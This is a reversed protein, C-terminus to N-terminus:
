KLLIMKKTQIYDGAIIRYIYVGSALATANFELTYNGPKMVENKLEKVKEGLINFVSLNVQTEKPVAFKITTNPNFPNPYNQYM